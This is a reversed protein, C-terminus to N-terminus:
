DNELEILFDEINTAQIKSNEFDKVELLAGRIDSLIVQKENELKKNISILNLKELDYLLNKADPNILTINLTETM